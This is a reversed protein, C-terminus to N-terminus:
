PIGSIKSNQKFFMSKAVVFISIKNKTQLQHGCSHLHLVSFGDLESCEFALYSRKFILDLLSNCIGICIVNLLLFTWFTICM